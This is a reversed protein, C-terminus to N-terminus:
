LYRVARVYYSGAWDTATASRGGDSFDCTYATTYKGYNGNATGTTSSWYNTLSITTTGILRIIDNFMSVNPYIILLEEITPLRWDGGGYSSCWSKAANWTSYSQDLSLILGSKNAVIGNYSEMVQGVYMYREYGNTDIVKLGKGYEAEFSSRTVNNFSEWVVVSVLEDNNLCNMTSLLQNYSINLESISLGDAYLTELATNNKLNLATIDVNNSMRLDKLATNSRVNIVSLQNDSVWLTELVTNNAVKFQTLNNANVKLTVLGTNNDVNLRTLQNSSCDLTVLEPNSDV